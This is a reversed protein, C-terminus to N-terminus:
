KPFYCTFNDKLVNISLINFNKKYFYLKDDNIYDQDGPIVIVLLAINTKLIKTNFKVLLFIQLFNLLAKLLMEFFFM